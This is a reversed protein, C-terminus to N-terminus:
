RDLHQPFTNPSHCPAFAPLATLSLSCKFTTGTNSTFAFTPTKINTPTPPHSTITVTPITFIIVENQPGFPPATPVNGSQPPLQLLRASCNGNPPGFTFSSLIK